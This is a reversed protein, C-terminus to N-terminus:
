LLSWCNRQLFVLLVLLFAENLWLSSIQTEVGLEIGVSRLPYLVHWSRQQVGVRLFRGSRLLFIRLVHRPRQQVCRQARVHWLRIGPLIDRQALATDDRCSPRGGVRPAGADRYLALAVWNNRQKSEPFLATQLTDSM